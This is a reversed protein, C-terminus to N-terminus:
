ETVVWVGYTSVNGETEPSKFETGANIFAGSVGAGAKTPIGEPNDIAAGALDGVKLGAEQALKGSLTQFVCLNGEEAQPAEYNGKCGAPPTPFEKNKFETLNPGPIYHVHTEDLAAALPVSFSIPVYVKGNTIEASNYHGSATWAGHESSGKPLVGGATWPSGPSGPKGDKGPAGEKGDKGPSGPGGTEGKAGPAGQPGQAGAAGAPGAAGSKGSSGALAKLVKPSIQKTSTILYKGAAYAGGSMAFVLALTAAVNAFTLRKSIMSFM